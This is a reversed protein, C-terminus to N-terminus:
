VGLYWIPFYAQGCNRCFVVNFLPKGREGPQFQQGNLTIYREDAPQLTAFVDGAGAVFQHLRFAFLPNVMRAPRGIPSCCCNACTILVLRHRAGVPPRSCLLRM